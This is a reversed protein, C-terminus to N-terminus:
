IFKVGQVPIDKERSPIEEKTSQDDEENKCIGQFDEDLILESNGALARKEKRVSAPCFDDSIKLMDRWHSKHRWCAFVVGLPIFGMTAFTLFWGLIQIRTPFVYDGWYAPVFYYIYFFSITFLLFPAVVTWAAIWYYELCKPINVDMERINSLLKKTGYFFQISFLQAFATVFLGLGSSYFFFLEFMLIGGELCMTLGCLFLVLCTSISVITKRGRLFEFQDYLASTLTEVTPIQSGIGLNILMFFFLASWLQPFPLLELATPYAVFVMGSGSSAVEDVKVGLEQALFGLISFTVFGSFVSTSSNSLNIVVADRMCNNKFKNYSSLSILTGFAICNSYFIQIAADSWVQAEALKSINFKLLYYQIGQSAGELTIGRVFLIALILYPFTATFYVVKGVSKIGKVLSCAIISLSLAQCGVIEWQLGGMNSWTKGHSGLMRNKFFDESPSIKPLLGNALVPGDSHNCHTLNHATLQSIQCYDDVSLCTRNYYYLSQNMCLMAEANSYCGPSNFDNNCHGWPLTNSFSAFFYFISWSVILNYSAAFLFCMMIVSWGIGSFIPALKGFLVFPGLSTYQGISMEMFSLPLAACLSLTYYPILFVAGGNKYCLYPFRWINGYGVSYGLCSLIFEWKNRWNGRLKTKKAPLDQSALKHGHEVENMITFWYAQTM